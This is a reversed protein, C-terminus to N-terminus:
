VRHACKTHVTLLPSRQAPILPHRGHLQRRHVPGKGILEQAWSISILPGITHQLAKLVSRMVPHRFDLTAVVRQLPTNTGDTLIDGTALGALYFRALLGANCHSLPIASYRSIQLAGSPAISIVEVIHIYSFASQQTTRDQLGVPTLVILGSHNVFGASYNQTLFEIQLTRPRGTGSSAVLGSFHVKAHVRRRGGSCVCLEEIGEWREMPLTLSAKKMGLGPKRPSCSNLFLNCYEDM